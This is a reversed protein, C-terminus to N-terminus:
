WQCCALKQYHHPIHSIIGYKELFTCAHPAHQRQSAPVGLPLVRLLLQSHVCAGFSHIVTCSLCSFSSSFNFRLPRLSHDGWLAAIMSPAEVRKDHCRQVQTQHAQTCWHWRAHSEAETSSSGNLSCKLHMGGGNNSSTQADRLSMNSAPAM